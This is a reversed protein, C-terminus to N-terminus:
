KLLSWLAIFDSPGADLYFEYFSADTYQEQWLLRAQQQLSLIELYSLYYKLYSCPEETIYQYLQGAQKEGFGLPALFARCQEYSLDYYHIYLDM